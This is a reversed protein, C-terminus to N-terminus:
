PSKTRKPPSRRRSDARAPMPWRNASSTSCYLGEATTATRITEWGTSGPWTASTKSRGRKSCRELSRRAADALQSRLSDHRLRGPQAVLGPVAPRLLSAAPHALRQIGRDRAPRRRHIGQARRRLHLPPTQRLTGDCRRSPRFLVPQLLPRGTRRSRQRGVRSREEPGDTADMGSDARRGTRRSRAPPHLVRDPVNGATRRPRNRRGCSKGSVTIRNAAPSNWVIPRQILTINM